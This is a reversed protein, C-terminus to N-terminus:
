RYIIKDTWNNESQYDRKYVTIHAQLGQNKAVEQIKLIAKKYDKDVVFHFDIESQLDNEAKTGLKSKELSRLIDEDLQKKLITKDKISDIHNLKLYIISYEELTPKDWGIAQNLNKPIRRESETCATIFLFTFFLLMEIKSLSCLNKIKDPMEKNLTYEKYAEYM